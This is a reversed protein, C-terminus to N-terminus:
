ASHRQRRRRRGILAAGAILALGCASPEPVATVGSLGAAQAVVAAGSTPFGAGQAQINNDIVGYDGGDIVGDYNFDGNAYGDAGPVQVFNDITGYDGGDIVGDLNADGAYTYMAITSAGSITQGAFTDTDTQGLGRIQEGTAVGITTLGAAADPMSTTLGPLDWANFDYASQVAGQIGNYVGGTSTGPATNTILKNDKLDIRGGGTISVTPALLARNSGGGSAIELTGGTVNAASSTTLSSELKLVGDNVNTAGTYSLPGNLTTTGTGTKTIATIRDAANGNQITGAFTTNSNAGGITYTATGAANVPGQITGTGTIAGLAVAGGNRTQLTGNVEFTTAPGGNNLNTAGFRLASGADVRVTGLHNIFQQNTGSASVSTQGTVLLTSSADGTVPGNFGNGLAVSNLTATAGSELVLSNNPFISASTGTGTPLMSFTAGNALTISGAISSGTDLALTAGGAVTTNGGYTQATKVIVTGGNVVL